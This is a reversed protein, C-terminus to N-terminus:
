CPEISSVRRKKAVHYVTRPSAHDRGLAVFVIQHHGAIECSVKKPGRRPSTVFCSAMICLVINHHMSKANLWLSLILIARIYHVMRKANNKDSITEIENPITAFIDEYIGTCPCIYIYIYIDTSTERMDYQINCYLYCALYKTILNSKLAASKTTIKGV